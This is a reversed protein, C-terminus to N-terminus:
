LSVVNPPKVRRGHRWHSEVQERRSSLEQVRKRSFRGTAMTESRQRKECQLKENAWKHGQAKRNLQTWPGALDKEVEKVVM